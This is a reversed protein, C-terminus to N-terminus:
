LSTSTICSTTSSPHKMRASSVRLGAGRDFLRALSSVDVPAGTRARVGKHAFMRSSSAQGQARQSTAKSIARDKARLALRLSHDLRDDHPHRRSPGAAGVSDRRSGIPLKGHSRDRHQQAGPAPQERAKGSTTLRVRELDYVVSHSLEAVTPPNSELRPWIEETSDFFLLSDDHASRMPAKASKWCDM